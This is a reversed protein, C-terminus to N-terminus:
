LPQYGYCEFKKNKCIQRQLVCSVCVRVVVVSGPLSGRKDLQVTMYNHICNPNPQRSLKDFMVVMNDEGKQRSLISTM